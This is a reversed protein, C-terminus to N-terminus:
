ISHLLKLEMATNAKIPSKTRRCQIGNVLVIERGGEGERERERGGERERGRGGERERGRGGEGERERGRGGEGERERGRGREM